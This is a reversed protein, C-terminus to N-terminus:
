KEKRRQSNSKLNECIREKRKRKRKRKKRKKKKKRKKRKRKKKKKRKKILFNGFIKVSGDPISPLNSLSIHRKAFKNLIDLGFPVKM